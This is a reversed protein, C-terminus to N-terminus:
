AAPPAAVAAIAEQIQKERGKGIGKVHSLGGHEAGAQVVAIATHLGADALVKVTEADLGLEAVPKAHWAPTEGSSANAQSGSVSTEVPPVTPDIVVEHEPVLVQTQRMSQVKGPPLRALDGPTLVQGYTFEYRQEEGDQDHSVVLINKTVVLNGSM